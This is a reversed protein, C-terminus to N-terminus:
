RGLLLDRARTFEMLDLAGQQFATDLDVLQKGLTPSTLHDGIEIRVCGGMSVTLLLLLGCVKWRESKM